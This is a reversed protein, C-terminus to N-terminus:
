RLVVNRLPNRRQALRGKSPLMWRTQPDERAKPTGGAAAASASIRSAMAAEEGSSLLRLLSSQRIKLNQTCGKKGVKPQAM